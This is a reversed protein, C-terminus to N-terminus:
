EGEKLEGEVPCAQFRYDAPYIGALKAVDLSIKAEGGERVFQAAEPSALVQVGFQQKWYRCGGSHDAHAHTLLIYKLKHIDLGDALINAYIREAELGVGADILAMENGGDVLYVHCDLKHSLGFGHFGGGVLYIRDTLRM